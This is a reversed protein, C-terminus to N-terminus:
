RVSEMCLGELQDMVQEMERELESVRAPAERMKGSKAMAELEATISSARAASLNGLAGKLGHAVKQLAACDERAIAEKMAAMQEPYDVRLLGLLEALFARDGDVRELLEEVCVPSHSVGAPEWVAPVEPKLAMYRDLVADLEAPRIPKTLYGDMGAEMCRERDGKMVLATMAVVPQHRSSGREGERLLRTAELGDMVPMQVDMLVLDFSTKEMASLAERGNLAVAMRHGRKELLRVALKQNVPNDEALLIHLSPSAGRNEHLTNTTVMGRKGERESSQLVRSIADRLEAQRVPKLLYASIGLEECRAADGRQGGSTLMMITATAIEANEKIRAVLGFGDMQPMHMDTLVLQYPENKEYAEVLEMLANEGDHATGPNMGWRRVLGELIRRNTRNDDVVLVKTGQLVHSPNVAEATERTARSVGFKATFFFRSGVGPESEVWIRGGMMEILKKSITLGLGTGGYERTTSTDAQNFSEFISNLKLPDIGVGTDEVTFRLTIADDEILEPQVRLAVEGESTFKLANGLLNILVQRLRGPDGVLMEPLGHPTEGLLELGKEDARLALTKLTGEICECLHFDIEELEMKSAEIKSFDLIDNIVSLLSDASLKVTELYDKQERNLETSLTLDTMGIIGNLPTRIEHSMNALFESKARSAAKAVTAMEELAANSQLLQDAQRALEQEALKRDTIDHSVGFTGVIRGRQDRLPAKSTRVWGTRGDLWVEFEEKGVVPVGTRMIEREDRLAETAHESRYLNADTTGVAEDPHALGMVRAKARSIRVFRSETDKFYVRDPVHDLFADLLQLQMWFRRDAMAMLIAFVLFSVAVPTLAMLAGPSILWRGGSGGIGPPVATFRVAAMGVYHVASFELGLLGALWLKRWSFFVSDERAAFTLWLAVSSIAIALVASLAVLPYSYSHRAPLRIAEMGISHMAAIGSGIVIGGAISGSGKLANRSVVYLGVGSALMAAVMSLLVLPWNYQVEVPLRCAETGIFHMSWIGFGLTFAGGSLWALQANGRTASVRGALDLAAYAAFLAIVVSVTVLRFDYIGSLSADQFAM